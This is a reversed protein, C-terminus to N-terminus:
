LKNFAMEISQVEDEWSQIEDIIEDISIIDDNVILGMLIKQIGFIIEKLKYEKKWVLGEKEINQIKKALADLDQESDWVKIELLVFSYHIENENNKNNSKNQKEEYIKNLLLNFEDEENEEENKNKNKGKKNIKWSEIVKNEFLTMFQLWAFINPYEGKDLIFNHRIKEFIEADESSPQDGNIFLQDNLSCNIEELKEQTLDVM